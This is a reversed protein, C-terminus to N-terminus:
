FNIPELENFEFNIPELENFEFNIPELENFEFNYDLNEIEFNYHNPYENFLDNYNKLESNNLNDNISETFYNMMNNFTQNNFSSNVNNNVNEKKIYNNLIIENLDIRNFYINYKNYVIFSYIIVKNKLYIIKDKIMYLNYESDIIHSKTNHIKFNLNNINLQKEFNLLIYDDLNINNKDFIMFKIQYYKDLKIINVNKNKLGSIMITNLDNNSIKANALSNYIYILTDDSKSYEYFTILPILEYNEIKYDLLNNTLLAYKSIKKLNYYSNNLLNNDLHIINSIRNIYKSQKNFLNYILVDLKIKYKNIQIINNKYVNYFRFHKINYIFGLKSIITNNKKCFIFDDFYLVIDSNLYKIFNNM